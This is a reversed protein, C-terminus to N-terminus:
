RCVSRGLLKEVVEANFSALPHQNVHPLHMSSELLSVMVFVGLKLGGKFLSTGVDNSKSDGQRRGGVIEGKQAGAIDGFKESTVTSGASRNGFLRVKETPFDRDELCKLMEQLEFHHQFPSKPLIFAFIYLSFNLLFSSFTQEPMPSLSKLMFPPANRLRCVDLSTTLHSARDCRVIWTM